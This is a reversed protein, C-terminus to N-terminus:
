LCESASGVPGAGDGWKQPPPQSPSPFPFPGSPWGGAKLMTVLDVMVRCFRDVVVGRAQM